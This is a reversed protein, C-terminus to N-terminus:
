KLERQKNHEITKKHLINYQIKTVGDYTTFYLNDFTLKIFNESHALLSKSNQNGVQKPM